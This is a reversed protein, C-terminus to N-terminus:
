KTRSSHFQDMKGSNIISPYWTSWLQNGGEMEAGSSHFRARRPQNVDNEHTEHTFDPTVVRFYRKGDVEATADNM